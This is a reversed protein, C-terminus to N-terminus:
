ACSLFVHKYKQYNQFLIKSIVSLVIKFCCLFIFVPYLLLTLLIWHKFYICIIFMLMCTHSLSWLSKFKLSSFISQSKKKKVKKCQQSFNWLILIWNQLTSIWFKMTFWSDCRTLDFMSGINFCFSYLISTSIKM